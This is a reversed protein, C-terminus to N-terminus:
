EWGVQRRRSPTDQEFFFHDEDFAPKLEDLWTASEDYRAFFPRGAWEQKRGRLFSLIFVKEGRVQQTGHVVVKGP